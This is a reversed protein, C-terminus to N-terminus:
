VITEIFREMIAAVEARTATDRPAFSGDNRGQIIGLQQYYKAANVAFPSIVSADAYTLLTKESAETEMGMFKAFRYLIAAMEQRNIIRNPRFLGDEYGEIIDNEDCWDIYAGCWSDYECDPFACTGATKQKGYSREYLRGIVTAFMARTMGTDPSFINSVTGIFIERETVFDIYSKAWHRSIDTFDKPNPTLLVTVDKPALYKMSGCKDSAFGIFVKSGNSDLYYPLGEAKAFVASITHSSTVNTFTYSGVAGVSKGDVLVNSVAYGDNATITFTKSSGETVTTSGSPSISGGTGASANITHNGSDYSINSYAIAYTSFKKAWVIVLNHSYDVMFCESTQEDASYPKEALAEATNEHFRYVKINTKGSLDYPIIIKLLSDTEPLTITSPTSGTKSKTLEMNLYMGVSQGAAATKIESAGSAQDESQKGVALKIEVTNSGQGVYDDDARSFQQDLNGVVVDPTDNAIAVVSDEAGALPMTINANTIDANTVRIIITKTVSVTNGNPTYTAVINYEGPAIDSFSYNGSPDTYTNKPVINNGRITVNVGAVPGNPDVVQGGISFNWKAYFTKDGSETPGIATVPNGSFNLDTYWGKFVSKERSVQTPLTVGIGYTYSTFSGSDIAGGNTNFSVSYTPATTRGTVTCTAGVKGSLSSITLTNTDQGSTGLGSWFYSYYDTGAGNATLELTKGGLVVAGTLIASGGYKATVNSGSATGVDAATFSVTFYDVTAGGIANNIAVTKGTDEGNVYVEYTGSVVNATYVGDTNKTLVVDSSGSKKLVVGGNGVPTDSAASDLNVAVTAAFTNVEFIAKVEVASAPMTFKGNTITVGDTVAQWEKFHYGENPTATLTVEDGLTANAPSASGTGNGDNTVTVAYNTKEFIAKVEVASAPMDFQNNSVTVGGGVAQWEKFHYGAAPTATLTVEDGLTANAPNASGTGNGDNSVTVPYSTKEFVAKVEVASAPMTFKGNTITVGDTVAQWEKFHYGAAPTATLTVEDGLTANAPSASGTGNGDNTVTVPYNVTLTAVSSTVTATVGDTNTVVCRYQGADGAGVSSISYSVGTESSINNWSSGSYKQWQYSVGTMPASVTVSLVASSGALATVDSPGTIVPNQVWKAWYEKAGKDTGSIATAADGTLASSAYWGGFVYGDRTIDTPLTAGTGYAYSTVDKGNAITGGDSHLTVAYGASGTVTCTANVKGGLSAITVTPGTVSNTGDGLWAYLYTPSQADAASAGNATLELAKGGLVVAGTSIASGDYKATVSSGSATGADTASFNVTYYNVTSSAANYTITIDTGTDVDNVFIDYTGNVINATYIGSSGSLTTDASGSKKLVVGSGVPTDSAMGDLNVTVTATNATVSFAKSTVASENGANDVAIIHVYYNGETLASASTYTPSPVLNNGAKVTDADDAANQDVLVYYGKVGTTVTASATNSDSYSSGDASSFERVYYDYTNGNDSPATWNLTTSGDTTATVTSSDVADPATLDQAMHDTASDEKTVQALYYLTNTLIKQEDETAAGNSHGTQIMATNNWTTLYFNQPVDGGLFRMWIDGSASQGSTHCAPVTLISNLTYPYNTLLGKKAVSINCTQTTNTEGYTTEVAMTINFLSMLTNFYPHYFASNGNKICTDHGALCGGGYNIFQEMAKESTNDLDGSGKNGGNCDWSGFFIVDYNYNGLTGLYQSPNSKFLSLPVQTLAMNYQIGDILPNGYATMWTKLDDSSHSTGNNDTATLPEGTGTDGSGDPYDGDPYVNLVKINTSVSISQYITEGSDKQFVMYHDGGPTWHLDVCNNADDATATITQRATVPGVQPSTVTTGGSETIKVSIYCGIDSETLTYTQATAGSIVADSRMWQYTSATGSNLNATLTQGSLTNGSISASYSTSSLSGTVSAFRTDVTESSGLTQNGYEVFYGAPSFTEGYDFYNYIIDNWSFSTDHSGKTDGRVLTTLCNEGTTDTTGNPEGGGWNWYPNTGDQSNRTNKRGTYFTTGREPGCAWYWNSGSAVDTNFGSYYLFGNEGSADTGTNTLATGGLWGVSENSLSNIFVDEDYSTVTALYGTRGMYTMQEASTYASTWAADTSTSSSTFPIYQYYHQTDVDYFTDYQVDVTTITVKVSQSTGGLTFGIKQIYNQVDAADAGAAINIRKTYNNSESTDSVVFGDPVDTGTPLTITDGDKVSESFSLLITKIGSGTVTANNYYYTSGTATAAGLTLTPATPQSTSYNQNTQNSKVANYIRNAPTFTNGDKSPTVTGSWGYAERILYEGAQILSYGTSEDYTGSDTKVSVTQTGDSLTTGTDATGIIAAAYNSITPSSTIGILNGYDTSIGTSTDPTYNIIIHNKFDMNGSFATQDTLGIPTFTVGGMDIDKTVIYYAQSYYTGTSGIETYSNINVEYQIMDAKRSIQYPNSESGDGGSFTANPNSATGDSADAASTDFVPYGDNEDADIKWKYLTIDAPMLGSACSRNINLTQSFAQTKMTDATKGTGSWGDVTSDDTGSLYYTSLSLVKFGSNSTNHACPTYSSNVKGTSYCNVLQGYSWGSFGGGGSSSSVDGRAYCNAITSTSDGFCGVFGGTSGYKTSGTNSVSVNAWCNAVYTRGGSSFGGILGGCGSASGNCSVSGGSVSCNLIECVGGAGVLAGIQNSDSNDASVTVSILNVNKICNSNSEDSYDFGIYGFLGTYNTASRTTMNSICLNSITLNGGDYNGKFKNVATSTSNQFYGIPTWEKGALDIAATQVFYKGSFDTGDNVQKALYALQEASSIQFPKSQSGDGDAFSEAASDIWNGTTEAKAPLSLAPLLSLVLTFVLLMSSFKQFVRKM